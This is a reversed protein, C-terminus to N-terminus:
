VHARGIETRQAAVSELTLRLHKPRRFSPICIVTEVSCDLAPSTTVWARDAVALETSM